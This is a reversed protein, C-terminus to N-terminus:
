HRSLQVVRTTKVSKHAKGFYRETEFSWYVSVAVMWDAMGEIYQAVYEDIRKGWSPVQTQLTKFRAIAEEYMKGVVDVAQPLDLNHQNMVVVLM